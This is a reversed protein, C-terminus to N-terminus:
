NWAAPQAPESSLRDVYEKLVGGERAAGRARRALRRLPKTVFGWSDQPNQCCAQFRGTAKRNIYNTFAGGQSRRAPRVGVARM